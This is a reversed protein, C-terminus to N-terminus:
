ALFEFRVRRYTLHFRSKYKGYQRYGPSVLLLIGSISPSLRVFFKMLSVYIFPPNTRCCGRQSTRGVPVPGGLRYGALIPLPVWPRFAESAASSRSGLGGYMKDQHSESAPSPRGRHSRDARPDPRAGRRDQHTQESTAGTRRARILSMWPFRSARSTTSSSMLAWLDGFDKAQAVDDPVARVGGICRGPHHLM